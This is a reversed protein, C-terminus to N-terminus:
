EKEPHHEDYYECKEEPTNKCTCPVKEGKENMSECTRSFQGGKVLFMKVAIGVIALGVLIVSIIILQFM